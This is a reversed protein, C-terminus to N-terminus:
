VEDFYVKIGECVGAEIKMVNFDCFEHPFTQFYKGKLQKSKM